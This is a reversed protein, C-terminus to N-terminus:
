ETIVMKKTVSKGNVNFTYFYVGPTFQNASLSITHQGPAVEAFTNNVLKRGMMDFVTFVVDSSKTVSYNIQTSKNFPNPYNQAVDFGNATIANVGTTNTFSVEAYIAIDQWDMGISAAAGCGYQLFAGYTTNPLTLPPGTFGSAKGYFYEFGNAFSNARVKGKPPGTFPVVGGIFTTDPLNAGLAACNYGPSGYLFGCTDKKSEDFYKMTVGFQGNGPVVINPALVLTHGQLWSNGKGSLGTDQKITDTWLVTTSPIGYAGLTVVSIILTDNKGSTNAQGVPIFLSDVTLNNGTYGMGSAADLISDFAVAVNRVLLVNVPQGNPADKGTDATVYHMNFDQIYYQGISPSGLYSESLQTAYASDSFPYDLFAYTTAGMPRHAKAKVPNTTTAIRRTVKSMTVNDMNQAFAGVALVSLGITAIFKYVKKM